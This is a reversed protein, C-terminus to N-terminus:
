GSLRLSEQYFHGSFSSPRGEEVFKEKERRKPDRKRGARTIIQQADNRHGALGM